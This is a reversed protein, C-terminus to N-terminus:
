RSAGSSISADLGQLAAHSPALQQEAAGATFSLTPAQLEIGAGQALKVFPSPYVGLALMLLLLVILVSAGAGRAWQLPPAAAVSPARAATSPSAVDAASAAAPVPTLYLQIMARLYFFVGAASGAGVAGRLLWLHQDVGAGVM